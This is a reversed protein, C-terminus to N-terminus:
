ARYWVNHIVIIYANLDVRTNSVGSIVGFKRTMQIGM